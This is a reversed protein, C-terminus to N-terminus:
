MSTDHKNEVIRYQGKQNRELLGDRVLIMCIPIAWAPASTYKKNFALGIQTPGTWDKGKLYNLIELQKSTM